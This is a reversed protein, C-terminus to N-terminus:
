WGNTVLRHKVFTAHDLAKTLIDAPQDSGAIHQVKFIGKAVFQRFFHYKINMHKTRPRMKPVNAMDVAGKNDEFFTCTFTPISAKAVINNKVAEKALALIPLMERTAMSLAVYEAETSSLAIESQMKSGWLLPCNAFTIMFGTRSKATNPDKMAATQKWDSAHSADVYCTFVDGQKAHDEDNKEGKVNRQFSNGQPKMIIGKDKTQLLYRCIHKVAEGHSTKPSACFRACQHVACAIDPRTCKELYNLKGIVSRYDFHQDFEPGDHDAHIVKTKMAPTGRGRAEARLLGVDKLISDILHPQTMHIAGDPARKIHIGLYDCLDGTEEINFRQAILQTLEQLKARSPGLLISDDVYLLLVSQGHYFVCEDVTSQKFGIDLLGQVLFQNWVRGAQRQGYLNKRLKLAYDKKDAGDLDIGMPIEIYLEREVPAQTYALVFDLQKTHWNNILSQVLFFRTAPWTVVPSHTEEFHKGYIQKSGDVNLRAKWKYVERTSIRRKRKMSWVTPLVTSGKPIKSKHVLEWHKNITHDDIEKQMAARFQSFDKEKRAQWLYMTDPDAVAKMALMHRWREDDNVESNSFLEHPIEGTVNLYGNIEEQLDRKMAQNAM